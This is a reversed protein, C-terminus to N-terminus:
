EKHEEESAGTAADTTKPEEEHESAGTESDTAKHEEESVGTTSDVKNEVEEPQAQPRDGHVYDKIAAFVKKHDLAKFSAATFADTFVKARSEKNGDQKNKEELESYINSLRHVSDTFTDVTNRVDQRIPRGTLPDKAFSAIGGVVAGSVIGILFGAM